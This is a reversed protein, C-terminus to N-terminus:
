DPFTVSQVQPLRVIVEGLKNRGTFSFAYLGSTMRGEVRTGDRTTLVVEVHDDAQTIDTIDIRKLLAVDVSQGSQLDLKQGTQLHKFSEAFVTNRTGDRLIIETMPKTPTAAPSPATAPAALPAAQVGAIAPKDTPGEDPKPDLWGFQGIAALLGAVATVLAAIGTLIGPMTSWWSGAKPENDTM